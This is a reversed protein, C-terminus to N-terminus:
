PGQSNTSAMLEEAPLNDLMVRSDRFTRRYGRLSHTAATFSNIMGRTTLGSASNIMLPVSAAATETSQKLVRNHEQAIAIIIEAKQNNTLETDPHFTKKVNEWASNFTDKVYKPQQNFTTMVREVSAKGTFTLNSITSAFTDFAYGVNPGFTIRWNNIADNLLTTKVNNFADNSKGDDSALLAHTHLAAILPILPTIKKLKM